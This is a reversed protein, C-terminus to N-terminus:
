RDIPLKGFREKDNIKVYYRLFDPYLSAKTALSSNLGLLMDYTNSKSILVDCTISNYDDLTIKADKRELLITIFGDALTVERMSECKPITINNKKCFHSSIVTM